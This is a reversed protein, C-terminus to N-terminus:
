VAKDDEYEVPEAKDGSASGDSMVIRQGGAIARNNALM